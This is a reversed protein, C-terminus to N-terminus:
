WLSRGCRACRRERYNSSNDLFAHIGTAQSSNVVVITDPRSAEIGWNLKVGLAGGTSPPFLINKRLGQLQVFGYKIAADICKGYDQTSNSDFVTRVAEASSGSTSTHKNFKGVQYSTGLLNTADIGSKLGLAHACSSCYHTLAEILSGRQLERM